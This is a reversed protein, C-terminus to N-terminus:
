EAAVRWCTDPDNPHGSLSLGERERVQDWLWGGNEIEDDALQMVELRINRALASGGRLSIGEVLVDTVSIDPEGGDMEFSIELECEFDVILALGDLVTDAIQATYPYSSM